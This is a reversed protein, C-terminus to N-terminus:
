PAACREPALPLMKEAAEPEAEGRLFSFVALATLVTIAALVCLLTGFAAGYAHLLADRGLGPLLAMAQPLNGTTM